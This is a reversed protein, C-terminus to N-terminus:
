LLRQLLSVENNPRDVDPADPTAAPDLPPMAKAVIPICRPIIVLANDYLAALREAVEGKAIRPLPKPAVPNMLVTLAPTCDEPADTCAQRLSELVLIRGVYSSQYVQIIQTQMQRVKIEVTAFLLGPNPARKLM